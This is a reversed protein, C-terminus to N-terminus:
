GAKFYRVSEASSRIVRGFVKNSPMIFKNFKLITHFIDQKLLVLKKIATGLLIM